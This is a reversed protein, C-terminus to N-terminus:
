EVTLTGEMGGARHGPVDCYFVYEGPELEVGGRDTEGLRASAVVDDGDTDEIVFTHFVDEATFAVNFREADITLEAPAFSFNVGTVEVTPAGELPPNARDGGGSDGGGSCAALAVLGIPAVVALIRVGRGARRAHGRCHM